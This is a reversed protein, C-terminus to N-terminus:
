LPVKRGLKLSRAYVFSHRGKVEKSGLPIEFLGISWLHSCLPLAIATLSCLFCPLPSNCCLSSLSVQAYTPLSTLSPLLLLLASKLSFSIPLSLVHLWPSTAPPQPVNVLQFTGHFSKYYQLMFTGSGQIKLSHYQNCVPVYVIYDSELVVFNIKNCKSAM